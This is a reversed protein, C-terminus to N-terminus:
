TGRGFINFIDSFTVLVTLSLLLVMGVAQLALITRAKFPRRRAGEASLLLLKGGDLPPIPLLNAVGLGVSMQALIELYILLNEKAGRSLESTFGVPGIFKVEVGKPLTSTLYQFIFGIMTKAYDFVAGTASILAQAPPLRRTTLRMTVGLFGVGEKERLRLEEIHFEGSRIFGIGITKGPNARIIEVAQGWDLIKEGALERIEDGPKLGAAEAASGPSIAEIQTSVVPIGSIFIISILIIGFLFNTLSGSLLILFRKFWPQEGMIPLDTTELSIDEPKLDEIKVYGGFPIAALAYITGGIKKSIVKPGYGIVFECVEIRLIKAMVFHGTEHVMILLGLGFIALLVGSLNGQM